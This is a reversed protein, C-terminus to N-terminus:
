LSPRSVLELDRPLPLGAAPDVEMAVPAEPVSPAVLLEGNRVVPIGILDGKGATVM